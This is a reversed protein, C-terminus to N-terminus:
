FLFIFVHILLNIYDLLHVLIFIDLYFYFNYFIYCLCFLVLTSDYHLPFIIFIFFLLRKWEDIIFHLALPFTSSSTFNMCLITSCLHSDHDIVLVLLFYSVFHPCYLLVKKSIAQLNGSLNIPFHFSYPSFHLRCRVNCYIEFVSLESPVSTYFSLISFLLM